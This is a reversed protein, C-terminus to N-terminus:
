RKKYTVQETINVLDSSGLLVQHKPTYGTNPRLFLLSIDLANGKKIVAITLVNLAM